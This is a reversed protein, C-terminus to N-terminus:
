FLIDKQLGSKQNKSRELNDKYNTQKFFQSWTIVESSINKLILPDIKEIQTLQNEVEKRKGFQKGEIHSTIESAHTGKINQILREQDTIM